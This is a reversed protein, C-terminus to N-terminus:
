SKKKRIISLKVAISNKYQVDKYLIRQYHLTNQLMPSSCIITQKKSLYMKSLIKHLLHKTLREYIMILVPENISKTIEKFAM